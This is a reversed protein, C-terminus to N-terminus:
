DFAMNKPLVMRPNPSLFINFFIIGPIICDINNVLMNVSANLIRGTLVSDGHDYDWVM